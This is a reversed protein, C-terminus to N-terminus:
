SRQDSLGLYIEPHKRLWQILYRTTEPNKQFFNHYFKEGIFGTSLAANIEPEEWVLYMSYLVKFLSTEQEDSLGPLFIHGYIKHYAYQAKDAANAGATRDTSNQCNKNHLYGLQEALINLYLLLDMGRLKKGDPKKDKLLAAGALTRTEEPVEELQTILEKKIERFADITKLLRKQHKFFEKEHAISDIAHKLHALKDSKLGLQQWLDWTLSILVEDNIDKITAGMEAPTPYKNFANFSINFHLLNLRIYRENGVKLIKKNLNRVAKQQDTILGIEHWSFLSTLLITKEETHQANDLLFVEEEKLNLIFLAQELVHNELSLEGSYSGIWQGTKTDVACRQNMVGKAGPRSNRLTQISSTAHDETYQYDIKGSHSDIGTIKYKAYRTTLTIEEIKDGHMVELISTIPPREVQNLIQFLIENRKLHNLAAMQLNLEPLDDILSVSKGSILTLNQSIKLPTDGSPLSFDKYGISQATERVAHFFNDRRKDNAFFFERIPEQALLLALVTKFKAESTLRETPILFSANKFLFSQVKLSLRRFFPLKYTYSWKRQHIAKSTEDFSTKSALPQFLAIENIREQEEKLCISIQSIEELLEPM